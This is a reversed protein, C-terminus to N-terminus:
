LTIGAVVYLRESSPNLVVSGSVPLSFSDTIKIEKHTSISINCINFEEEITYQGDGGGLTLDVPGADLVAELYIDGSGNNMMYAGTLSLKGINLTAMPEIYHSTSEFWRSPPFYYDTLTLGLSANESLGIEYGAYIDTEAAENTSANYSGWAGLVFNGNSFEIVPQLAPGSGFKLGRWIYSSYIDLGINWQQASVGTLSTMFLFLSTAIILNRKM